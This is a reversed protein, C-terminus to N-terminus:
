FLTTLTDAFQDSWDVEIASKLEHSRAFDAEFLEEKLHRSVGPDSTALDAERNLRLSLADFNASGFCDWGDVLMAKVHTMGPYFYVRVGHKLLYNSVVLNSKHGPGLDNESPMVVRVDVGRQRARVLALIVANEFIYPNEVFAYSSCFDLAAREARRIQHDFNRTYLRRVDIWSGTTNTNREETPCLCAAALGCDGWIGVQAWKKDFQRRLSAVVPGEVEAMLDHWEYRYERGLNMGGIYAYQDDIFFVKSHDCSLGPNPQPRVQVRSDSRMYSLISRPPSFGERMPTAPLSKAGSYTMLRDYVVQVSVNSSRNKLLDALDVAVDDSDFICVHVGIRQRAESIRRTLLPYFKDGDVLLRVSGKELQTGTDQSLWSEWATLDMGSSERLPPIFADQDRMHPGLLTAPWQTWQHITRTSSSVPNKLFAWVHDVLIFSLLHSLGFGQWRARRPDDEPAPPFLTVAQRTQLDLFALRYSRAHGFPLLFARDSPYATRLETELAEAAAVALEHRTYRRDIQVGAPPEGGQQLRIAGTQERFLVADGMAYRCHIAHGAEAPVLRDAIARIRRESEAAPLMRTPRWGSKPSPLRAPAEDPELTASAYSFAEAGVRPREWEAKFMLNKEQDSLYLHLEHDKAFVRPAALNTSNLLKELRREAELPDNAPEFAQACLSFLVFAISILTPNKVLGSQM